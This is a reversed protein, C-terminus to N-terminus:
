SKTENCQTVQTYCEPVVSGDYVCWFCVVCLCDCCVYGMREHVRMICMKYIERLAIRTTSVRWFSITRLVNFRCVAHICLKIHVLWISSFPLPFALVLISSLFYVFLVGFFFAIAYFMLFESELNREKM